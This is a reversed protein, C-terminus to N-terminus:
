STSKKVSTMSSYMTIFTGSNSPRRKWSALRSPKFKPSSSLPSSPPSPPSPFSLPFFFFLSFFPFPFFSSFPSFSLSSTEVEAAAAAAALIFVNKFHHFSVRIACPTLIWATLVLLRSALDGQMTTEPRTPGDALISRIRFTWAMFDCDAEGGGTDRIRSTFGFCSRIAFSLSFYSEMTVSPPRAPDSESASSSVSLTNSLDALSIKSVAKNSLPNSISSM